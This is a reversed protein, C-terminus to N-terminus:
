DKHLENKSVKRKSYKIFGKQKDKCECDKEECSHILSEKKEYADYWTKGGDNSFMNLCRSCQLMEGTPKGYIHSVDCKYQSHDCPTLPKFHILKVALNVIADRSIPDVRMKFIFLLLGIVKQTLPGHEDMGFLSLERRAYSELFALELKDKKSLFDFM